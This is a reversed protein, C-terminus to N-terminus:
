QFSFASASRQLFEAWRAISASKVVMVVLLICCYYNNIENDDFVDQAYIM